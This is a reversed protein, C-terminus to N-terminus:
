RINNNDAAKMAEIYEKHAENMVGELRRMENLEELTYDKVVFAKGDIDDSIPSSISSKEQPLEDVVTGSSERYKEYADRALIVKQKLHQLSKM